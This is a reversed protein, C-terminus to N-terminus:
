LLFKKQKQQWFHRQYIESEKGYQRSKPPSGIVDSYSSHGHSCKMELKREWPNLHGTWLLYSPVFCFNWCIGDFRPFDDLPPFGAVYSTFFFSLFFPEKRPMMEERRSFFFFFGRRQLIKWPLINDWISFSVSLASLSIVQPESAADSRPPAGSPSLVEGSKTPPRPTMIEAPSIVGGSGVGGRSTGRGRIRVRATARGRGEWNQRVGRRARVATGKLSKSSCM